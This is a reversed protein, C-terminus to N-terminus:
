THLNEWTRDTNNLMVEQFVETENHPQEMNTFDELLEKLNNKDMIQENIIKEPILKGNRILNRQDITQAKKKYLLFKYKSRYYLIKYDDKWLFTDSIEECEFHFKFDEMLEAKIENFLAKGKINFETAKTKINQM